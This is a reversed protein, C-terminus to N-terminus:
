EDDFEEFVEVSQPFNISLLIKSIQEISLGEISSSIEYSHLDSFAKQIKQEFDDDNWIELIEPELLTKKHLKSVGFLKWM